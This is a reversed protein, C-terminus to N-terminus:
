QADCAEVIKRLLTSSLELTQALAMMEDHSLPMTDPKAALRVTNSWQKLAKALVDASKSNRTASM